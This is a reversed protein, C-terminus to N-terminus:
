GLNRMKESLAFINVLRVVICHDFDSLKINVHNKLKYYIIYLQGRAWGSGTQSGIWPQMNYKIDDTKLKRENPITVLGTQREHRQYKKLTYLLEKTSHEQEELQFQIFNRM